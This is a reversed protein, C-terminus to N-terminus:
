RILENGFVFSDVVGHSNTFLKYPSPITMDHKKSPFLTYFLIEGRSYNGGHLKEDEIIYFSNIKKNQEIVKCIKGCATRNDVSIYIVNKKSYLDFNTGKQIMNNSVGCYYSFFAFITNPNNKVLDKLQSLNIKHSQTCSEGVSVNFIDSLLYEKIPNDIFFICYSIFIILTFNVGLIIRKIKKM